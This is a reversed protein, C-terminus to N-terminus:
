RWRTSARWSGRADRRPRVQPDSAEICLFFRDPQRLAFRRCTSCRTTRSRCATSRWCASCRRSRPSCSRADRVDPHHVGALQEAAPRRHQDPLRHRQRCYQLAFGGLAGTLGGLLVICRCSAHPPLGLAEASGRSRSRRTPTWGGTARRQAAHAARSLAEPDSFEALLGYSRRGDGVDHSGRPRRRRRRRAPEKIEAEPVLERLEFISIMPLFRIFLFLLAFFLRHTGIFLGWDWVTPSYMGWSSPLFDRHLSIVIIVFRELWMGVNVVMRSSGVARGANRRVRKFWLLQPIALVNCLILLGTAGARVPGAHPEHMMFQEYQNGSYWAMFVEMVYGYGVILGTALMVKAM